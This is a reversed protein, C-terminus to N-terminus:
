FFYSESVPLDPIRYHVFINEAMEKLKNSLLPFYYRYIPYLYIKPGYKNAIVINKVKEYFKIMDVHDEPICHLYGFQVKDLFIM